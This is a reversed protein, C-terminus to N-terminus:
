SQNVSQVFEDRCRASCFYHTEGNLTKQIATTAVTYTGCVPDRKLEGTIPLNQPRAQPQPRSVDQTQFFSGFTKALIGFVARLISILFLSSLLYFVFRFM